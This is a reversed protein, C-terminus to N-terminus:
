SVDDEETDSAKRVATLRRIDHIPRKAAEEATNPMSESFAKAFKLLDPLSANVQAAVKHPDKGQVGGFLGIHQGLMELSRNAASHAGNQMAMNANHMLRELVWEATLNYMQPLDSGEPFEPPSQTLNRQEIYETVKQKIASTGALVSPKYQGKPFGAEEYARIQSLGRVINRAFADFRSDSNIDIELATM